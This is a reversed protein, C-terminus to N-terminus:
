TQQTEAYVADVRLTLCILQGRFNRNEEELAGVRDILQVVLSPNEEQAQLPSPGTIIALVVLSVFSLGGGMFRATMALGCRPRPSGYSKSFHIAAGVKAISRHVRLSSHHISKKVLARSLALPYSKQPM